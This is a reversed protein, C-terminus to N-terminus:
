TLLSSDQLGGVAIVIILKGKKFHWNFGDEIIIFTLRSQYLQVMKERYSCIKAPVREM